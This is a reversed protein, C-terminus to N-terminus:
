LPVGYYIGSKSGVITAPATPVFQWFYKTGTVLGTITASAEGSACTAAERRILATRSTGYYFYGDTPAIGLTWVAVDLEDTGPTTTGSSFIAERLGAVLQDIGNKVVQNFWTTAAKVVAAWLAYASIDAATLPHTGDAQVSHVLDVMTTLYGRQTTQPDTRPNAPIVYERAVNLGKWGFFVISKGIAGSAGLSLLPAKLKAM